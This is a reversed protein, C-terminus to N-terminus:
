RLGKTEHDDTGAVDEGVLIDSARNNRGVIRRDVGLLDIMAEATTGLAPTARPRDLRNEILRQCGVRVSADGSGEGLNKHCLPKLRTATLSPRLAGYEGM